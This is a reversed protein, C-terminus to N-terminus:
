SRLSLFNEKGMDGLNKIFEKETEGIFNLFKYFDNKNTKLYHIGFLDILDSKEMFKHAVDKKIFKEVFFMEPFTMEIDSLIDLDYYMKYRNINIMGLIFDNIDFEMIKDFNNKNEGGILEYDASSFMSYIKKSREQKRYEFFTTLKEDLIKNYRNLLKGDQKILEVQNTTLSVGLNMYKNKLDSPLSQFQKDTLKKNLDVYVDIYYEKDKYSLKSFEEDNLGDKFREYKGKEDDGLPVNKFYGQLGNLEPAIELIQKWSMEKDGDNWASTVVYEDGKLVQIVFFHWKDKFDGEFKKGSTNWYNFENDTAAKRKVFYFSPEGEGMRYRMYMNSADSRSVCWSYPRNGKYEVCSQRNPAYYIAVDNNEFIPKGDVKIDEFNALGFNRQGMMYNVVLKLEDFTKYQDIDYRKIGKEIKLGTLDANELEKYKKDKIERFVELYEDVTGEDNGQQIFKNKQTKFDEKIVGNILKKLQSETIIIKM